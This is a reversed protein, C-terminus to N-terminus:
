VNEKIIKAPIGVAVKNSEINKNALSAAGLITNDEITVNQLITSNTGLLNFNGINTAGSINCGPNIVNGNGIIVDHGVTTNLNFINFSGININVTFICGATILNGIGLKISPSYGKFSPHIINPFDFSKFKESVKRISAPNGIGIALNISEPNNVHQNLWEEEDFISYEKQALILSNDKQKFDIFGQFSFTPRVNNIEEILWFVEKAFGGSGIIYIPSM